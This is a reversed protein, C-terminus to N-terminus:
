ENDEEIVLRRKKNTLMRQSKRHWKVLKKKLNKKDEKLRAIEDRLEESKHEEEHSKQHFHQDEVSKVEGMILEHMPDGDYTTPLTFLALVATSDYSEICNPVLNVCDAYADRGAGQTSEPLYLDTLNHCGSFTGETIFTIQTSTLDLFSLSTCGAFCYAGLSKLSRPLWVSNLGTCNFFADHLIDRVGEPVRVSVLRQIWSFSNESIQTINSLFVIIVVDRKMDLYNRQDEIVYDGVGDYIVVDRFYHRSHVRRTKKSEEFFAVAGKSWDKSVIFLNKLADFPVFPAFRGVFDSSYLFDDRNDQWFMRSDYEVLDTSSVM